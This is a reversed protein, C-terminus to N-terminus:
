VPASSCARRKQGTESSLHSATLFWLVECCTTVVECGHLVIPRSPGGLRANSCLLQSTESTRQQPNRLMRDNKQSRDDEEVACFAPQETSVHHAHRRAVLLASGSGDDIRRAAVSMAASCDSVSSASAVHQNKAQAFPAPCPCAIASDIADSAATL